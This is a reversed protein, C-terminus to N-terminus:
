LHSPLRLPQSFPARIAEPLFHRRARIPRSIVLVVRCPICIRPRSGVPVAQLHIGERGVDFHIDDDTLGKSGIEASKLRRPLISM